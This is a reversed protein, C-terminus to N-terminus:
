PGANGVDTSWAAGGLLTANEAPATADAATPGSGEDFRWNGVLGPPPNGLEARYSASIDAGSRVVNWVRVDDIKGRWYNGSPGSRGIDFPDSNGASAAGVTTQAVQAGGLYLTLVRTSANLTAAAHHWANPTVGNAALDYRITYPTGGARLGAFLGNSDVALFYPVEAASGPDGKALLRARPHNYGGPTEDRFWLEVTWGSIANLEANHPAEAYASTGSLILSAAAAVPTATQSGPTRTPPATTAGPTPTSTVTATPGAPTPTRTATTSPTRTPTATSSPPSGGVQIIRAVSPVGRSNVIVLMYYGPLAINANSTLAAVVQGSGVTFPPTLYSQTM